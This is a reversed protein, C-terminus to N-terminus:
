FGLTLFLEIAWTEVGAAALGQAGTARLSHGSVRESGDPAVLEVGLLEAAHLITASMAEKSCATGRATPFLPLSAM